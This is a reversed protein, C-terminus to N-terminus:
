THDARVLAQLREVAEPLSAMSLDFCDVSRIWHVLDFIAARSLHRPRAAHAMLRRLAEPRNLPGLATQANPRYNPFVIWRVPYGKGKNWNYTGDPPSLYRVQKGDKRKYIPLQPLKPYYRSLPDLASEKICLSYPLGRASLPQADLLTVDDSLYQFGECLLAATLSTKGVGGTGPMLLCRGARAVAAAHFALFHRDKNFSEIFVTYSTLPGLEELSSCTSVPRSDLRLRFGERSPLIDLIRANGSRDNIELHALLPHVREEVPASGYQLSFTQDLVRYRRQYDTARVHIPRSIDSTQEVEAARCPPKASERQAQALLGHEAWRAQIDRFYAEAKPPDIKFTESLSASIQGPTLGDECCIWIYTATTNLTYLSQTGECFVLGEDEFLFLEVDEAFQIADTMIETDSM